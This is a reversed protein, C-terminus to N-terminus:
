ASDGASRFVGPPVHGGCGADLCDGARADACRPGSAPGRDGAAPLTETKGSGTVGHLLAAQYTGSAALSRLRNLAADQEATLIIPPRDALASPATAHFPDRDIQRRTFAVLGMAALRSIAASGIGRATMEATEIGDPAAALLALAERQRPGIRSPGTAEAPRAIELGQVTLSAVRVTRFGRPRGGAPGAVAMPPMAAALASGIGCAYYHAVWTALRVVDAPLFPEADLVGIIPKITSPPTDAAEADGVVCGTLVRNGLPVLVRAGVVPHELSDPLSYTLSDLAPVPVAVRVLRM